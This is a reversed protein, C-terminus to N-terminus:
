IGQRLSAGSCASANDRSLMAARPHAQLRKGQGDAAEDGGTQARCLRTALAYQRQVAPEVVRGTEDWQGRLQGVQVQDAEVQGPMAVARVQRGAGLVVRGARDAVYEIDGICQTPIAEGQDAMRHAGADGAQGCRGCGLAHLPQHRDFGEAAQAARLIFGGLAQAVVYAGCTRQGPFVQAYEGVQGAGIRARM